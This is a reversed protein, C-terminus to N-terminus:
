LHGGAGWVGAVLSLSDTQVRTHGPARGTDVATRRAELGGQVAADSCPREHFNGHMHPM